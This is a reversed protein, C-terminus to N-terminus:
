LSIVVGFALLSDHRVGYVSQDKVQQFPDARGRPRVSLDDFSPSRRTWTERYPFVSVFSAEDLMVMLWSKSSENRNGCLSYLVQPLMVLQDRM